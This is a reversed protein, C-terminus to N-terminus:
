GQAELRGQELLLQWFEEGPMPRYFHFGQFNYCGLSTLLGLERESEVGEAIVDVGMSHAMNIITETISLAVPDSAIQRVFSQDVKLQEIPIKHLYSLSSYGTGFDDLALRVGIERLQRLMEIAHEPDGVLATETLELKVYRAPVQFHLLYERLCSLWSEDHLQKASINLSLADFKGPLGSALAHSLWEIGSRLVFDGIDIILESKEALPIFEAPSVFQGQHRWRLLAEAGFIHGHQDVQPQYYLMLEGQRLAGHLATTLTYARMTHQHSEASFYDVYSHENREARDLAIYANQIIEAAGLEELPYPAIGINLQGHILEGEFLQGQRAFAIIQRALQEGADELARDEWPGNIALLFGSGSSRGLVLEDDAGALAKIHEAFALMFADVAKVGHLANLLGLQTFRLYFCLGWRGQLQAKVKHRQLLESFLARNPLGTKSDYQSLYSLERETEKQLSIDSFSVVFNTIDGGDNRTTHVSLQAPFDEGDRKRLLCEGHWYGMEQLSELLEERLQEHNLPSQVFLYHQGLADQETYGSLAVFRQNVRLVRGDADSVMLAENTNFALEAINLKELYHQKETVDIGTAIVHTVEGADNCLATNNWEIQRLAGSKTLWSNVFQNPFNGALLNDFVREVAERQQHPIVTEWVLRGLVEERRYGTVQEAARNFRVIRGQQDLVTVVAAITDFLQEAFLAEAPGPMAVWPVTSADGQATKSNM